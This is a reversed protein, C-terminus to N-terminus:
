SRKQPIFRFFGKVVLPSIITAFKYIATAGFLILVVEALDVELLLHFVYAVGFMFSILFLNTVFITWVYSKM